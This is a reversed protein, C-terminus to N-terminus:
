TAVIDGVTIDPFRRGYRTGTVPDISAANTSGYSSGLM